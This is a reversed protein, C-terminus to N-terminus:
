PMRHQAHDRRPPRSHTGERLHREHPPGCVPTRGSHAPASQWRDARRRRMRTRCAPSPTPCLSTQHRPTHSAVSSRLGAISSRSWLPGPTITRRFDTGSNGITSDPPRDAFEARFARDFAAQLHDLHTKLTLRDSRGSMLETEESVWRSETRSRATDGRYQFVGHGLRQSRCAVDAAQENSQSEELGDDLHLKQPRDALLHTALLQTESVCGPFVDRSSSTGTSEFTEPSSTSANTTSHSAAMSGRHPM